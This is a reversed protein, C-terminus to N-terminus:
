SSNTDTSDFHGSFSAESRATDKYDSDSVSGHYSIHTAVVPPPSPPSPKLVGGGSSSGVSISEANMQNDTPPNVAMSSQLLSENNSDISGTTLGRKSRISSGDGRDTAVSRISQPNLFYQYEHIHVEDFKFSPALPQINQQMEAVLKKLRRASKAIDESKNKKVKKEFSPTSLHFSRSEMANKSTANDVTKVSDDNNSEELQKEYTSTTTDNCSRTLIENEEQLRQLRDQLTNVQLNGNSKLLTINQIELQIIAAALSDIDVSTAPTSMEKM